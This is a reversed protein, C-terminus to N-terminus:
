ETWQLEVEVPGVDYRSEGDPVVSVILCGAAGPNERKFKALARTVSTADVITTSSERKTAPVNEVQDRTYYSVLYDFKKNAKAM